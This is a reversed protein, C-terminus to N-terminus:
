TTAVILAPTIHGAHHIFLSAFGPSHPTRPLPPFTKQVKRPHPQRQTQRLVQRPLPPPSPPPRRPHPMYRKRQPHHPQQPWPHQHLQPRMPPIRITRKTLPNHPKIQLRPAQRPIRPPTVPLGPCIAPPHQLLQPLIVIRFIPPKRFQHLARKILRRQSNRIPRHIQQVDIPHMGILRHSMIKFCPQRLYRLSPHHQKMIRPLPPLPKPHPLQPLFQQHRPSTPHFIAPHLKKMPMPQPHQRHPLLQWFPKLPKQRLHFPHRRLHPPTKFQQPPPHLHRPHHPTPAHRINKRPSSPSISPASTPSTQSPSPYKPPAAPPNEQPAHAPPARRAPNIGASTNRPSAASHVHPSAPAHFRHLPHQSAPPIPTKRPNRIRRSITSTTPIPPSPPLPMHNNFPAIRISTSTANKVSSAHPSHDHLVASRTESPKQPPPPPAHPKNEISLPAPSHPLPSTRAAHSPTKAHPQFVAEMRRPTPRPRVAVRPAPKPKHKASPRSPPQRSPSPRPIPVGITPEARIGSKHPPNGPAPYPSIPAAANRAQPM